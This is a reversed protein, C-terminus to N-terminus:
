WLWGLLVEEPNQSTSVEEPWPPNKVVAVVQEVKLTEDLLVLLKDLSPEKEHKDSTKM